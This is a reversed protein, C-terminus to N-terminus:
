FCPPKNPFISLNNLTAGHQWEGEYRLWGNERYLKGQGHFEGEQWQGDYWLQGNERYLKGQGHFEGEQWQGDYWLQGNEDYLKGQGHRTGEQLEGEYALQGNERYFKGQGHWKDNDWEGEYELKGNEYYKKKQTFCGGFIFAQVAGVKLFTSSEWKLSTNLTTLIVATGLSISTTLLASKRNNEHRLIGSVLTAVGSVVLLDKQTAGPFNQIFRKCGAFYATAMLLSCSLFFRNNNKQIEIM